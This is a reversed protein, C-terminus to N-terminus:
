FYLSAIIVLLPNIGALSVIRCHTLTVKFVRHWHSLGDQESTNSLPAQLWHEPGRSYTLRSDNLGADYFKTASDCFQNLSNVGCLFIRLFKKM